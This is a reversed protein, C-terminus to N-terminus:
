ETDVYYHGCKFIAALDENCKITIRFSFNHSREVRVWLCTNLSVHSLYVKVLWHQQITLAISTLLDMINLTGKKGQLKILNKRIFCLHLAFSLASILEPISYIAHVIKHYNAKDFSWVLYLLVFLFSPLILIFFPLIERLAKRHSEITAATKMCLNYGCARCCLPVLTLATFVINVLFPLTMVIVNSILLTNNDNYVELLVALIVLTMVFLISSILLCFDSKYTFQYNHLAMLYICVTICSMLMFALALSGCTCVLATTNFGTNITMNVDGSNVMGVVYSVYTINILSSAILAIFMYLVLRYIFTRWMKYYLLVGLAIICAITSVGALPISVADAVISSNNFM